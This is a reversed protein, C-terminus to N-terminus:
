QILLCLGGGGDSFSRAVAPYDILLGEADQSVVLDNEASILDRGKRQCYGNIIHRRTGCLLLGSHIQDSLAGTVGGLGGGGGGWEGLLEIM